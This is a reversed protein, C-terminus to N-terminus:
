GKSRVRRLALGALRAVWVRPLRGSLATLVKNRGGTVVLAKGKALARLTEDAVAEATMGLSLNAPRREFGARRFFNSETPGPCVALARVGTGQLDNHLALTWNLLFAKTAGYTALQPTPQFAATSAINVVCGGRRRLEPLLRATLEVAARVNLDIMVLQKDIELDQLSGYDGFGSNNVLLVEGAPRAALHTRV